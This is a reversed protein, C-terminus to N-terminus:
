LKRLYVNKTVAGALMQASAAAVLTFFITPNYYGAIVGAIIMSVSTILLMPMGAKARITKLREENEKNYQLKLKKDDDLIRRYFFIFAISLIGLVLSVGCQFGFIYSTKIVESAFFVDYIGLGVAALVPVSLLIIRRKLVKRYKDM